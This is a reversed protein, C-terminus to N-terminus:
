QFNRAILAQLLEQGRTAYATGPRDHAASRDCGVYDALVIGVPGTYRDLLEIMHANMIAANDRYGDSRGNKGKYIGDSLTYGSAFNMIWVPEDASAALGTSIAVLDKMAQKKRAVAGPLSTNSVDQVYLTACQTTDTASIITSAGGSLLVEKWNELYGGVPFSCFGLQSRRLLLMRGRMEGVTLDPRFDALHRRVGPRHTLEDMLHQYAEHDVSDVVNGRFLHVVLFESPHGDLFACLTDIAAEFTLLTGHPGHNCNLYSGRFEPRFDFGRM